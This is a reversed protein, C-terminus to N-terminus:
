WMAGNNLTITTLHGVTAKLHPGGKCRQVRAGKHAGPAGLPLKLITPPILLRLWPPNTPGNKGPQALAVVRPGRTSALARGGGGDTVEKGTGVWCM